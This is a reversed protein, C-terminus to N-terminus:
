IGFYIYIYTCIYHIKESSKQNSSQIERKESCCSFFRGFFYDYVYVYVCVCVHVHVHVYVHLYLHLHVHM